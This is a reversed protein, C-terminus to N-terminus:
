CNTKWNLVFNSFFCIYQVLSIDTFLRLKGPSTTQFNVWSGSSKQRTLVSFFFHYSVLPLSTTCTWTSCGSLLPVFVTQRWNKFEDMKWGICPFHFGSWVDVLFAVTLSRKIPTYPLHSTKDKVFFSFYNLVAGLCFVVSGNGTLYEGRCYNVLLHEKEVFEVPKSPIQVTTWFFISSWM